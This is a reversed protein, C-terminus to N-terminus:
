IHVSVYMKYKILLALHLNQIKFFIPSVGPVYTTSIYVPHITIRYIHKTSKNRLDLCVYNVIHAYIWLLYKTMADTQINEFLFRM